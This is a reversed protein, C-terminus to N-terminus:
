EGLFRMRIRPHLHELDLLTLFDITKFERDLAPPGCIKAGIALYTRLLKPVSDNASPSHIVPLAFDRHPVTRLAEEVQWSHLRRYVATGRAADQSTLSSCGILFRSGHKLAYLAIGRWLLYLVDTSRHERQICARGLEVVKSRVNEYPVLDFERQSYYGLNQDATVGTQLRYTGVTKRTPVHEVVLHDCVADFEDEDFGSVYSSQLGEKLELNFVEFRLRLAAAREANSLAFRALYGSHRLGLEELASQTGVHCHREFHGVSSATM